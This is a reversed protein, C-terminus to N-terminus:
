ATYNYTEMPPPPQPHDLEDLKTILINEEQGNLFLGAVEADATSSMFHRLINCVVHLPRNMPPKEMPSFKSKQHHVLIIIAEFEAKHNESHFKHYKATM